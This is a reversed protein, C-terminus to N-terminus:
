KGAEEIMAAATTPGRAFTDTHSAVLGRFELGARFGTTLNQKKLTAEVQDDQAETTVPAISVFDWSDGDMHVYWQTPAVGAAASAADRAAQWRLFELHKGPAVRYISVLARGPDQALATAPAFAACALLLPALLSVAARIPRTM